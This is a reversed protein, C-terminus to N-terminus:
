NCAKFLMNMIYFLYEQVKIVPKNRLLKQPERRKVTTKLSRKTRIVSTFRKSKDSKDCNKYHLRWLSSTVTVSRSTGTPPTVENM